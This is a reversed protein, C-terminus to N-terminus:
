YVLVFINRPNQHSGPFSLLVIICNMLFGSDKINLKDKYEPVKGYKIFIAFTHGM